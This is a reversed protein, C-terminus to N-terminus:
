TGAPGRATAVARDAEARRAIARALGRFLLAHAPLLAYWYLLGWVGAPHFYGTVTVRSDGSRGAVEMEVVGSGPTRMEFLLTLRRGPDVGIVRLADLTDGVRLETPHRRGRRLGPGGVLWDLGGRVRWL